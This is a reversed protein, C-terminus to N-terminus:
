NAKMREYRLNGCDWIRNWGQSRRIDWETINKPDSHTKRLAFRHIRSQKRIYWYNPNIYGTFDFGIKDYVGGVSWRRDAYSFIREWQYTNEFYKLMKSAIGVIRTDIKSCFRHLEWDLGDSSKSGKALSPKSFTMVSVLDDDYFAGIKVCSGSGYGQIHNENCFDKAEKTTIEAIVCKRAYLVVSSEKYLINRLRSFVLDTNNVLEDEFITILRFGKEECLKLKNLHYNKTKGALESHWYLGCYEIAINKSPIIIDLEYPSILQRDHEVTDPCLEKVFSILKKEQASTGWENCKPCRSQYSNWNSWTVEYKHGNPCICSLKQRNNKYFNSTLDYGSSKFNDSIFELTKKSNEACDPCRYGTKWNSWTISNEHGFPCIYDLKQSSNIYDVSLLKYGESAFSERVFEISLIPRGACFPCGHGAQFHDWRISHKHGEPCIYDLKEPPRYETSLLTCGESTFKKRIYDITIRRKGSGCLCRRGSLWKTLSVEYMHGNPCLSKLKTHANEYSMSLLKYGECEFFERVKDITYKRSM